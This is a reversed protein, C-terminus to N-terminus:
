LDDSAKPRPRGEEPKNYRVDREGPKSSFEAVRWGLTECVRAPLANNWAGGLTTAVSQRNELPKASSQRAM